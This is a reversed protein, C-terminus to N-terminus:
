KPELEHRETVKLELALYDISVHRTEGALKKDVPNAGTSDWPKIEEGNWIWIQYNIIRDRILWILNLEKNNSNM